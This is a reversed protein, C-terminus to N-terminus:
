LHMRLWDNVKNDVGFTAWGQGGVPVIIIDDKIGVYAEMGNRLGGPDLPTEVFFSNKMPHAWSQHSKLYAMLGEYNPGVTSLDFNVWLVAM